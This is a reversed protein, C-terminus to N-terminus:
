LIPANGSGGLLLVISQASGSTDVSWKLWPASGAEDEVMQIVQEVREKVELTFMPLWSRLMRGVMAFVKKM